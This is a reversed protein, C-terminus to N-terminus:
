FEAAMQQPGTGAKNVQWQPARKMAGEEGSSVRPPRPVRRGMLGVAAEWPRPHPELRHATCHTLLALPRNNPLVVRRQSPGQGDARCRRRSVAGEAALRPAASHEVEGRGPSSARPARRPARPAREASSGRHSRRLPPGWCACAGALRAAGRAGQQPARAHRQRAVSGSTAQGVRAGKRAPGFKKGHGSNDAEQRAESKRPKGM